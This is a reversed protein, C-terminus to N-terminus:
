SQDDIGLNRSPTHSHGSFDMMGGLNGRTSKELREPTSAPRAHHRAWEEMAEFEESCADKIKKSARLMEVLLAGTVPVRRNYSQIKAEKVAQELEASVNGESVEVALDIDEPIPCGRKRLHIQLVELRETPGPMLVGFIEDIRGKRLFAPDILKPWNGTAVWFIQAKTEQMFQLMTGFIRKGVGGDGSAQNANMGSKDIEDVWVVAPAVTELLSLAARMNKESEGLLSGFVRGIDMKILPLGLESATAKAILSKGSGPVGVVTIGKIPDLGFQRGEETLCAKHENLWAKLQDLGGVDSMTVPTEVLELVNSKRIVEVKAKSIVSCFAEEPINPFTDKNRMIGLAVATDFESMTMGAGLSIIKAVQSPNFNLKVEQLDGTEKDKKKRRSLEHYSEELESPTPLGLNLVIIKHELEQPITSGEPMILVLKSNKPKPKKSNPTPVKMFEDAYRNLLSIVPPMANRGPGSTAWFHPWLMVSLGDNYNEGFAGKGDVDHIWKLDAILDQPAKKQTIAADPASSNPYEMWGSTIDYQRYPVENTFAWMQLALMARNSESTMVAFVACGSDCHDKFNKILQEASTTERKVAPALVSPPPAPTRNIKRNTSVPPPPLQSTSPMITTPKLKTQIRTTQILSVM